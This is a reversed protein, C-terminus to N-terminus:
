TWTKAPESCAPKCCGTVMSSKVLPLYAASASKKQHNGKVRVSCLRDPSLTTLILSQCLRRILTIFFGTNCQMIATLLSQLSSLLSLRTPRSLASVACSSVTLVRGRVFVGSRRRATVASTPVRLSRVCALRLSTCSGTRGCCSCSSRARM